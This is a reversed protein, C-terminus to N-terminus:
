LMVVCQYFDSTTPSERLQALRVTGHPLIEVVWEPRAWEAVKQTNRDITIM